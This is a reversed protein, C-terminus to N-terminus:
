VRIAKGELIERGPLGQGNQQSLQKRECFDKFTRTNFRYGSNGAIQIIIKVLDDADFIRLNPMCRKKCMESLFERAETNIKGSCVFYFENISVMTLNDVPSIFDIQIAEIIGGQMKRIDNRGSKKVDGKKIFLCCHKHLNFLDTYAFYVDKGRERPGCMPEVKFAGLAKLVPILVKERLNDETLNMIQSRIDIKM